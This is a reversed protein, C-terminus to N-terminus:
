KLTVFNSLGTFVSGWPSKKAKKTGLKVSSHGKRKASQRINVKPERLSGPAQTRTHVHEKFFKDEKM